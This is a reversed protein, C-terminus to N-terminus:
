GSYTHGSVWRDEFIQFLRTQFVITTRLPNKKFDFFWGFSGDTRQWNTRSFWRNKLVNPNSVVRVLLKKSESNKEFFQSGATRQNQFRSPVPVASLDKIRFYKFFQFRRNKLFEFFVRGGGWCQDKKLHLCLM